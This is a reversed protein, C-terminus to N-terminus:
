QGTGMKAPLYTRVDEAARRDDVSVLDKLIATDGQGALAIVRRGPAAAKQINAYV